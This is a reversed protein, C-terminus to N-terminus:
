TAGNTELEENILFIRDDEDEEYARGKCSFCKKFWNKIRQFRTPASNVPKNLEIQTQDPLILTALEQLGKKNLDDTSKLTVELLGILREQHSNLNTSYISAQKGRRWLANYARDQLQGWSLLEFLYFASFGLYKIVPFKHNITSFINDYRENQSNLYEDMEAYTFAFATGGLLAMYLLSGCFKLYHTFPRPLKTWYEILPALIINKFAKAIDVKEALSTWIGAISGSVTALVLNKLIEEKFLTKFYKLDM